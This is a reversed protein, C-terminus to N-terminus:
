YHRSDSICNTRLQPCQLLHVLFSAVVLVLCMHLLATIEDTMLTELYENEGNEEIADAMDELLALAVTTGNHVAMICPLVWKFHKQVM